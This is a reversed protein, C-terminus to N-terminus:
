NFYDYYNWCGNGKYSKKNIIPSNSVIKIQRQMKPTYKSLLLRRFDFVQNKFIEYQQNLYNNTIESYDKTWLIPLGKYKNEIFTNYEVIPIGKSIWTEYHRYCDIGNGEPSINFKYKGVEKFYDNSSLPTMKYTKDLITKFKIRHNSSTYNNLMNGQFIKRSIGSKLGFSYFLLKTNVDPHNTLLNINDPITSLGLPIYINDRDNGTPDVASSWLDSPTIKYEIWDSFRMM